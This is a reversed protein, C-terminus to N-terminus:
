GDDEKRSAQIVVEHIGCDIIQFWDYQGNTYQEGTITGRGKVNLESLDDSAGQFDSWRAPYYTYGALLIYREVEM